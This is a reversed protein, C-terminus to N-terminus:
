ELQMLLAPRTARALHLISGVMSQYRVPDVKESFQDNKVLKVNIDMSTSAANAESLDYKELLRQKYQTQCLSIGDKGLHINVGLRCYHLQGLDKMKLTDNLSQKM